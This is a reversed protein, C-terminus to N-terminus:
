PHIIRADTLIFVMHAYDHSNLRLKGQITLIEDTKFNRQASKFQVEAVSEPGAGGCFFCSANPQKSIIISNGELDMPIYHGTLTITSGELKKVSESFEPLEIHSGYEDSWVWHFTTDEFAEWGTNQVIMSLAIAFSICM